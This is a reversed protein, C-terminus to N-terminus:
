TEPPSGYAIIRKGIGKLAVFEGNRSFGDLTTNGEITMVYPHLRVVVGIHQADSGVGYLVIGGIVPKQSRLDNSDLWRLWNDCSAFGTPAPVNSERYWAGCASACWFSGVPVGALNNYEDIRVGRNSGPPDECVGIDQAARRAIKMGNPSAPNFKSGLWPVSLRAKVYPLVSFKM